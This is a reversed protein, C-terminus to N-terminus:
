LSIHARQRLLDDRLMLPEIHEKIIRADGVRHAALAELTELHMDSGTMEPVKQQRVQQEIQQLRTRRCADDHNRGFCMFRTGTQIEVIEVHARTVTTQFRLSFM